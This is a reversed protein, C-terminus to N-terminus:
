EKLKIKGTRPNYEYLSNDLPSDMLGSIEEINDPYKGYATRYMQIASQISILTIHKGKQKTGQYTDVVADGYEEVPNKECSFLVACFLFLSICCCKKMISDGNERLM